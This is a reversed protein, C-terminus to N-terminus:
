LSEQRNKNQVIDKTDRESNQARAKDAFSQQAKRSFLASVTKRVEPSDKKDTTLKATNNEKDIVASFQIDSKQLEDMLKEAENVGSVQTYYREEPPLSKFFDSNIYEKATRSNNENIIKDIEKANDKHVTISTLKDSKVASFPISASKLAEIVKEGSAPSMRSIHRESKNLQKYYDPNITRNQKENIPSEAKLDAKEESMNEASRVNDTLNDFIGSVDDYELFDSLSKFNGEIPLTKEYSEHENLNIDIKLKASKGENRENAQWRENVAALVENFEAVSYTKQEFEPIMYHGHVKINPFAQPVAEKNLNESIKHLMPLDTKSVTIATVENKRSVASFEVANDSLQQMIGLAKETPFQEIAREDRPLSRFYDPNVKFNGENSIEAHLEALVDRKVEQGSILESLAKNCKDYDGKVMIEGFAYTDSNDNRYMKVVAHSNDPTKDDNLNNRIQYTIDPLEEPQAQLQAKSIERLETMSVAKINSKSECIENFKSQADEKTPINPEVATISGAANVAFIGVKGNPQSGLAYYEVNQETNSISNDSSRNNEIEAKINQEPFKVNQTSYAISNGYCTVTDYISQSFQVGTDALMGAKEINLSLIESKHENIYKSLNKKGYLTSINSIKGNQRDLAIPVFVNEGNKNMIDTILVISNKNRENGKIIMIPNRIEDSLKYIEEKPIKHGETHGKNSLESSSVANELDKQNLVVKKATSNLLKLVNPTSCVNIVEHSPMAGSFYKDLQKRFVANESKNQQIKASMKLIDNEDVM